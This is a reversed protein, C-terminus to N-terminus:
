RRLRPRPRPTATAAVRSNPSSLAALLKTDFDWNGLGSRRFVYIAGAGSGGEDEGAAGVVLYDEDLDVSCGFRDGAQADPALLKTGADWNNGAIHDILGLWRIVFYIGDGIEKRDKSGLAKHARFYRNVLRDLPEYGSEWERLITLAHYQRFNM